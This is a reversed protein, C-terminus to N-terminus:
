KTRLYTMIMVPIIKKREMVFDQFGKEDLDGIYRVVPKAIFPFVMSGLITMILQLPEIDRYNGKEIEDKLQKTFYANQIVGSVNFKKFIQGDNRTLESLVFSPVMANELLFDIYKDVLQWIKVEFPTEENLISLIRNFFGTFVETYIQEFLQEKSRFYYNMLAINVGAEEAIDRVRAGDFGKQVFIRKAAEKIKAETDKNIEPM